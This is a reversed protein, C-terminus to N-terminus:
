EKSGDVSSVIADHLLAIRQPSGMEIRLRVLRNQLDDSISQLQALEDRMTELEVSREQRKRLGTVAVEKAGNLQELRTQYFKQDFEKGASSLQVAEGELRMIEADLMGIRRIVIENEAHSENDAHVSGLERALSLFTDYKTNRDKLLMELSKQLETVPQLRRIKERYLVDQYYAKVVSDVARKAQEAEEKKCYVMVYMLESDDIFGVRLNRRLWAAAQERSGFIPLQSVVPDRLAAQFIMDSKATAVQTSCYTKWAADSMTQTQGTAANEMERSVRLMSIVRVTREPDTSPPLGSDDQAAARLGAAGIAGLAVVLFAIGLKWRTSSRPAQSNDHLMAIRRLFYPRSMRLDLSIPALRRSTPNLAISALAATYDRREAFLSSALLDASHELEFRL